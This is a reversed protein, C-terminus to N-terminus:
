TFIHLVIIQIESLLPQTEATNHLTYQLPQLNTAGTDHRYAERGNLTPLAFQNDNRLTYILFGPRLSLDRAAYMEVMGRSDNGGFEVAGDRHHQIWDVSPLCCENHQRRRRRGDCAVRYGHAEYQRELHNNHFGDANLWVAGGGCNDTLDWQILEGKGDTPTAWFPQDIGTFNQSMLIEADAGSALVVVAAAINWWKM